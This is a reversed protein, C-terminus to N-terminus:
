VKIVPTRTAIAGNKPNKMTLSVVRDVMIAILENKTNNTKQSEKAM